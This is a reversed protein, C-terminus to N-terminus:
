KEIGKKLDNIMLDIQCKTYYSGNDLRKSDVTFYLAALSIATSIFITVAKGWFSNIFKNLNWNRLFKKIGKQALFYGEPTLYKNIRNNEQRNILGYTLMGNILAPLRIKIHNEQLFKTIENDDMLGQNREFEGIVVPFIKKFEKTM